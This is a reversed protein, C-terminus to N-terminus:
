EFVLLPESKQFLVYFAQVTATTLFCQKCYNVTMIESRYM